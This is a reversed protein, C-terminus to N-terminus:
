RDMVEKIVLYSTLLEKLDAPIIFNKLLPSEKFRLSKEHIIYRSNESVDRVRPIKKFYSDSLYFVNENEDIDYDTFESVYHYIFVKEKKLTFTGVYNIRSTM